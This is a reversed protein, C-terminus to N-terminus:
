LRLTPHSARTGPVAVRTGAQIRRWAEPSIALLSFLNPQPLPSPGEIAQCLACPIRPPKGVRETHRPSKAVPGHGRVVETRYWTHFSDEARAFARISSGSCGM